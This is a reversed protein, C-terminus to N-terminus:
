FITGAPVTKIYFKKDVIEAELHKKAMDAMCLLPSHIYGIEAQTQKWSAYAEIEQEIRKTAAEWRKEPEAATAEVMSGDHFRFKVRIETVVEYQIPEEKM